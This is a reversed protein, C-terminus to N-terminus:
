LGSPSRDPESTESPGARNDFYRIGQKCPNHTSAHVCALFPNRYSLPLESFGGTKLGHPTDCYLGIVAIM